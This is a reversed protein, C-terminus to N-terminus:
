RQFTGGINASHIAGAGCAIFQIPPAKRAERDSRSQQAVPQAYVYYGRPLYDESKVQGLDGGDWVGPALLGNNVGAELAKEVELVLRSVGADTQAIKTPTTYLYGFVNTEITNQLWDLGHVEDFFTGDAMVGEALMASDGFYTYYNINKAVLAAQQSDTIQTPSIGPLVKFKLTLTSNQQTFDVAFARAFASFHAYPNGQEWVGFTRRAMLGKLTSAIDNDAGGDQVNSDSTSYGFIKVRANAWASAEEIDDDTIEKTFGFGYWSADVAQLANLSDTITEVDVGASLVGLDTADSGIMHGIYPLLDVHASSYGVSSASGTTGSSIIFRTGTFVVTAGAAVAQLGTQIIAAVANLNAAGSFDLHNVTHLTGDIHIDFAGTTVAQWAALSQEYNVSGMLSGPAAADFRRGVAVEAAHPNQQFFINAAIAEEANSGFDAAVADADSYFRLRNGVPLVASRGIILLLGFGKGAPFTPSSSITVRVIKSTPLGTM